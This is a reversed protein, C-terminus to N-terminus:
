VLNPFMSWDSMAIPYQDVLIRKPAVPLDSSVSVDAINEDNCVYCQTLSVQAATSKKSPPKNIPEGADSGRTAEVVLLAHQERDFFFTRAFALICEKCVCVDGCGEYLHGKKDAALYGQLVSAEVKRSDFRFTRNQIQDWLWNEGVMYLSPEMKLKDCVLSELHNCYLDSPMTELLTPINNIFTFMAEEVRDLSYLSSVVRFSFGQM